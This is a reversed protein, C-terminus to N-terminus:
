KRFNFRIYKGAEDTGKSATQLFLYFKAVKTIYHAKKRNSGDTKMISYCLMLSNVTQIM